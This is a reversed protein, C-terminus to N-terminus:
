VTTNLKAKVIVLASIIPRFNGSLVSIYKEFCKLMECRPNELGLLVSLISCVFIMGFDLMGLFIVSRSSVQGVQVGDAFAILAVRDPDPPLLSPPQQPTGADLGEDQWHHLRSSRQRGGSSSRGSRGGASSRRRRCVVALCIAMLLAMVFLATGLSALLAAGPSLAYEEWGRSFGSV